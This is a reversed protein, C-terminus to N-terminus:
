VPKLQGPQDVDHLIGLDNVEVEVVASPNGAIVSKGGRDGQLQELDSFWRRGFVVPHGRRISRECEVFPVAINDRSHAAALKTMTDPDIYPMDALMLLLGSFVQGQETEVERLYSVANAISHGMGRDSDRACIVTIDQHDSWQGLLNREHGLDGPKIVVFVRRCFPAILSISKSLLTNGQDFAALRKDSGFRSSRGAALVVGALNIQSFAGSRESPM